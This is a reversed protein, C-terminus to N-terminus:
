EDQAENWKQWNFMQDDLFFCIGCLGTLSNERTDPNHVIVCPSAQCVLCEAEFEPQYQVGPM